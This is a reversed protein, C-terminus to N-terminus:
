LMIKDAPLNGTDTVNGKRADVMELLLTTKGSGNPGLLGVLRGAQVTFNGDLLADKVGYRKSLGLAQYLKTM